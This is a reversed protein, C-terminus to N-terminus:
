HGMRVLPSPRASPFLVTPNLPLPEHCLHDLVEAWTSAGWRTLMPPYETTGKHRRHPEKFHEEMTKRHEETLQAGYAAWLFPVGAAQAVGGDSPLSDGVFVTQEATVGFERMLQQLGRPDPKMWDKPVLTLKCRLKTSLGKAVLARGFALEEDNLKSSAPPEGIDIAYVVDVFKDFGNQGVKTAVSYAPGNSVIAVKKDHLKLSNLAEVVNGYPKCNKLRSARLAEHYPEVIRKRFEQYNKWIGRLERDQWFTSEEWVWPWEHTGRADMVRCLAHSVDDLTIAKKGRRKLRLNLRRAMEPIIHRMAPVFYGIFPALTEDLDTAVLAIGEASGHDKNLHQQTM